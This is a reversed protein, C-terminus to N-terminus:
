FRDQSGGPLHDIGTVYLLKLLRCINAMVQHFRGPNRSNSPSIQSPATRDPLVTQMASPNKIQDMLLKEPCVKPMQPRDMAENRRLIM